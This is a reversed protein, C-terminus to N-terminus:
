HPEISSTKVGEGVNLVRPSPMVSANYLAGITTRHWREDRSSVMSKIEYPTSKSLGAKGLKEAVGAYEGLMYVFGTARSNM